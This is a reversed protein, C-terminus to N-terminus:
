PHLSLASFGGVVRFHSASQDEERRKINPIDSTNCGADEGLHHVAGAHQPCAGEPQGCQLQHIHQGVRDAPHMPGPPGRPRKPPHYPLPHPKYLDFAGMGSLGLVASLLPPPPPPPPPPPLPKHSIFPSTEIYYINSLRALLRALTHCETLANVVVM